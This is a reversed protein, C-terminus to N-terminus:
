RKRLIEQAQQDRIVRGTQTFVKWEIDGIAANFSAVKTDAAGYRLGVHPLKQGNLATEVNQVNSLKDDIFVIRDAKVQSLRLFNMLVTGKNNHPGVLLIGRFYASPDASVLAGNFVPATAALDVGLSQLQQASRLTLSLPRATLGMVQIKNKQLYHILKPTMAEVAQVSTRMQVQAFRGVGQDKAEREPLGAKLFRQIENMGWQDSGLTQTPEMITNDLDFIVLTNATILPLVQGMSKIELTSAQVTAALFLSIIMILKKM